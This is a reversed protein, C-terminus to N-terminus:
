KFNLVASAQNGCPQFCVYFWLYYSSTWKHSSTSKVGGVVEQIWENRKSETENTDFMYAM